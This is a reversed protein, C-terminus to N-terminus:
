RVTAATAVASAALTLQMDRVSARITQTRDVLVEIDLGAPVWQKLEPLLKYIRDITDIVNADGQKTIILLVSPQKNYWGASRSHGATVPNEWRRPTSSPVRIDM